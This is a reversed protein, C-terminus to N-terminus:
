AGPALLDAALISAPLREVRRADRHRQTGTRGAYLLHPLQRRARCVTARDVAAVRSLPQPRTPAAPRAGAPGVLSTAALPAVPHGFSRPGPVHLAAPAPADAPSDLNYARCVPPMIRVLQERREEVRPDLLIPQWAAELQGGQMARLSPLYHQGVLIELAFKAASSWFALDNGPRMRALASGVGPRTATNGLHGLFHLAPLPDLALGTVQWPVLRPPASQGERGARAAGNTKAQFVSRRALPLGDQSPLWVTLSTPHLDAVPICLPEATLVGRVQGIAAQGPHSPVKPPRHRGGTDHASRAAAAVPQAKLLADPDEAWLFLQGGARGDDARIWAAHLTLPMGMM